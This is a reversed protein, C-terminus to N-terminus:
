GEYFCSLDKGGVGSLRHRFENNCHLLEAVDDSYMELLSERGPVGHLWTGLLNGEKWLDRLFLDGLASTRRGYSRISCSQAALYFAIKMIIYSQICSVMDTVQLIVNLLLSRHKVLEISDILGM